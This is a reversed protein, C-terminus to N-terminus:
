SEAVATQLILSDPPPLPLVFPVPPPFPPPASSSSLPPSISLPPFLLPPSCFLPSQPPPPSLSPLSIVWSSSSSARTASGELAEDQPLCDQLRQGSQCISMFCIFHFSLSFYYACPVLFIAILVPRGTTALNISTPTAPRSIPKRDAQPPQCRTRYPLTMQWSCYYM